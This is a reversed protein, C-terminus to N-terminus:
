PIKPDTLHHHDMILASFGAALLAECRVGADTISAAEERSLVARQEPTLNLDLGAVSLLEDPVVQGPGVEGLVDVDPEILHKLSVTSLREIREGIGATMSEVSQAM